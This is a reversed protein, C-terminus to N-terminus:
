QFSEDANPFARDRVDRVYQRAADALLRSAQAYRRVFRPRFDDIMGVMDHYVLVQGDCEPGAGIGITPIDIEATIEAALPAPICELVVAFAGADRLSRADALLAERDRQVKHGGIRRVSQPTLGVHGVVPIGAAVLARVAPAVPVGGELKVARCDTEKLVRGAARLADEVSVQYSMFPLDAVVLARAAARAVMEAHYIIQDLTVRLTTDRGQVVMGLSDGVLLSDVGAADLARATPYDYATLMAIKRGERKWRLFHAPQVPTESDRDLRPPVSPTDASM